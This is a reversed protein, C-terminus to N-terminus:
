EGGGNKSTGPVNKIVDLWESTPWIKAWFWTKSIFTRTTQLSILLITCSELYHHWTKFAKFIALLEKDYTSHLLAFRAMTQGFPSYEPLQITKPDTGSDASFPSVCTSLQFSVQSPQPSWWLHTGTGLPMRTHWTHSHSWLIWFSPLLVAIFTLSGLSSSVEM